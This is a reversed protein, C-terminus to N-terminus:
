GRVIREVVLEVAKEMQGNAAQTLAECQAKVRARRIAGEEDAAVTAQQLVKNRQDKAQNGAKELLAACAKQSDLIIQKAQAAAEKKIIEARSEAEKVEKVIELSM